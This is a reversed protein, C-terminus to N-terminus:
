ELPLLAEKLPELLEAKELPPLEPIDLDEDLCPVAKLLYNTRKVLIFSTLYVSNRSHRVQRKLDKVWM